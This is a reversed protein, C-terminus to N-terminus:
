LPTGELEQATLNQKLYNKTTDFNDLAQSMLTEINQLQAEAGAKEMQAFTAGIAQMGCGVSGGKCGHAIQRIDETNKDTVAEKLLQLQQGTHDLYLTVMDRVCEVDHMSVDRLYELDVQEQSSDASGAITPDSNIKHPENNHMTIDEITDPMVQRIIYFRGQTKNDRNTNCARVPTICRLLKRTSVWQVKNALQAIM